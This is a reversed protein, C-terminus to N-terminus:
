SLSRSADRSSTAAEAPTQKEPDLLTMHMKGSKIKDLIFQEVTM